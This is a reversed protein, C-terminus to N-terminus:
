NKQLWVKLRQVWDHNFGCHCFPYIAQSGRFDVPYAIHQSSEEKEM